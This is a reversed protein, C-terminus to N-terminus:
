SGFSNLATALSNYRYAVEFETCLSKFKEMASESLRSQFDSDGKCCFIRCSAFRYKYITCKGKTQYPCRSTKMPKIKEGGLKSALYILEPTTVFLNHDFNDFDCCAGCGECHGAPKRHNRIQLDLWDYIESVRKLVRRNTNDRAVM